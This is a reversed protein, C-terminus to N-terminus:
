LILKQLLVDLVFEDGDHIHEYHNIFTACVVHLYGSLSVDVCGMHLTMSLAFLVPFILGM